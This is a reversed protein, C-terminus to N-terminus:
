DTRDSAEADGAVEDTRLWRPSFTKIYHAVADLDERPLGSWPPMGNDSRGDRIVAVLDAHTPLADDPTSKYRFAAARFDRPAVRLHSAAPGDGGGQEGHCSRCLKRYVERGRELEAASVHEGGLRQPGDFAIKSSGGAPSCAFACTVAGIGAGARRWWGNM